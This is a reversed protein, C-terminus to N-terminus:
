YRISGLCLINRLWTYMSTTTTVCYIELFANMSTKIQGTWHKHQNWEPWSKPRESSGGAEEMNPSWGTAGPRGETAMCSAYRPPLNPLGNHGTTQHLCPGACSGPQLSCNQETRPPLQHHWWSKRNRDHYIPKCSVMCDRLILSWQYVTWYACIYHSLKLLSCEWSGLIDTSLLNWRWCLHFSCENIYNEPSTLLSLSNICEDPPQDGHIPM